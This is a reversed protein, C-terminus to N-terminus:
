TTTQLVEDLAEAPQASYSPKDLAATSSTPSPMRTPGLTPACTSTAPYPNASLAAAEGGVAEPAGTGATLLCAFITGALQAALREDLNKIIDQVTKRLTDLENKM